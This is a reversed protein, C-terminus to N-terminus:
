QKRPPQKTAPDFGRYGQSCGLVVTPQHNWSLYRLNQGEAQHIEQHNRKNNKKAELESPPLKLTPLVFLLFVLLFGFDMLGSVTHRGKFCFYSEPHFYRQGELSVVFLVEKVDQREGPWSVTGPPGVLEMTGEPMADQASRPFTSVLLFFVTRTPKIKDKM